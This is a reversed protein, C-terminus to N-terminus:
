EVSNEAKNGDETVDEVGYESV